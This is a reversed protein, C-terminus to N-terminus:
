AGYIDLAADQAADQVSQGQAVNIAAKAAAAQPSVKAAADLALHLRAVWKQQIPVTYVGAVKIKSGALSPMASLATMLAASGVTFERRNIILKAM